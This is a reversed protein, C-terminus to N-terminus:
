VTDQMYLKMFLTSSVCHLMSSAADVYIFWKIKVGELSTSWSL